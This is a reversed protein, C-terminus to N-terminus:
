ESDSSTIDEYATLDLEKETPAEYRHYIYSLYTAWEERGPVKMKTVLEGGLQQESAQVQLEVKSEKKRTGGMSVVNSVSGHQGTDRRAHGCGSTGPQEERIGGSDNRTNGGTSGSEVRKTSGTTSDCVRENTSSSGHKTSSRGCSSASSSTSSRAANNSGSERSSSGARNSEGSGKTTGRVSGSGVTPKSTGDRTAVSRQTSQAKRPVGSASRKRSAAAGRRSISCYRCQCRYETTRPIFEGNTMDYAFTYFWMRNRLPGEQNPCWTWIMSNTTIIIPTRPLMFPKKFKVPIACEMGESIQKFKEAIEPALLPEEWKGWYTDILGEFNFNNGNVIEGSPCCKSLGFFLSSKGTNSPGYIHITNRKAHRKTIWQWFVHDFDSPNVGQHLLPGHIHAPDCVVNAYQKLTWSVSVCKSFTLCNQVISGFGPKHLHKVVLEPGKKIIDELTKCNHDMICQLIEQVMPNASDIDPGKTQQDKHFRAGLNWTEIDYTAQLLKDSNSCIWIPAKCMYQLLASAKHAKQCKLMDLTVTGYKEIVTPHTKITEWISQATRRYSDSRVNTRSLTHVHFISDKNTEAIAIWDDNCQMNNLLNAYMVPNEVIEGDASSIQLVGGIYARMNMLKDEVEIVPMPRAVYERPEIIEAEVEQQCVLQTGISEGRIGRWILRRVGQGGSRVQQSM